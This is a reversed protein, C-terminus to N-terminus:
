RKIIRFNRGMKEMIENLKNECNTQMEHERRLFNSDTGLQLTKLKDRFSIENFDPYKSRIFDLLTVKTIGLVRQPWFPQCLLRPILRM